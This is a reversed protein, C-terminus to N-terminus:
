ERVNFLEKLRKTGEYKMADTWFRMLGEYGRAFYPFEVFDVNVEYSDAVKIGLEKMQGKIEVLQKRLKKLKHEIFGQYVEPIKFNLTDIVQHDNELIQILYATYIYNVVLQEKHEPIPAKM